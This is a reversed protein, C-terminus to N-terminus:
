PALVDRVPIPMLDPLAEVALDEEAEHRIVAGYGDPGPRRHVEVAAAELLVVWLEPIGAAAYRPAKVRRDYDASSEAVEVVLLVDDPIPTRDQPANPRLLAVDPEPEALQSLRVPNQISLLALPPAQTYLREALLRNLRNVTHAHRPGIPSMVILRGDILEVRSDEDLIGARALAHYEDVTFPRERPALELLDSAALPM